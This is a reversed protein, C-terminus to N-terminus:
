KRMKTVPKTISISLYYWTIEWRPHYSRNSTEIRNSKRHADNVEIKTSTSNLTRKPTYSDIKWLGKGISEICVSMHVINERQSELSHWECFIILINFVADQKESFRQKRLPPLCLWLRNSKTLLVSQRKKLYREQLVESIMGCSNIFFSCDTQKGHIAPFLYSNFYSSSTGQIHM